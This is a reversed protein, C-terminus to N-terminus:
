SQDHNVEHMQSTFPEEWRTNIATVEAEWARAFAVALMSQARHAPTLTAFSLPIEPAFRRFAVGCEASGRYLLYSEASLTDVVACAQRDEVYSLLPLFYQAEFRVRLEAGVAHFVERTQRYTQHDANLTALPRGSLDQPRILPLDALPDDKPVACLCNSVVPTVNVLSSNIDNDIGLDAIGLDYSQTSILRHVQPSSRTIITVRIDEHGKTLRSVLRPLLFVSPGPMAVIRLNGAELNKLNKLNRETTDLRELIDTAQSLLYHAEPVAYLRLGRREFLKFGLEDELRAIAASIAPQTRGLNRAAQSLSGSLMVERFIVIQSLKMVLLVM